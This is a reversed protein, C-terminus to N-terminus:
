EQPTLMLQVKKSKSILFEQKRTLLKNINCDLKRLQRLLRVIYTENNGGKFGGQTKVKPPNKKLPLYGSSKM